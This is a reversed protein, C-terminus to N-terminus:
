HLLLEAHLQFLFTNFDKSFNCSRAQIPLEKTASELNVATECEFYSTEHQQSM